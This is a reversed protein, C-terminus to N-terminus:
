FLPIGVFLDAPVRAASIDRVEFVIDAFVAVFEEVGGCECVGKLVVVILYKEAIRLWVRVGFQAIVNILDKLMLLFTFKRKL